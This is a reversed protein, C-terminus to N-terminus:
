NVAMPCCGTPQQAKMGPCSAKAKDCDGCSSAAHDGSCSTCDKQCSDKCKDGRCDTCKDGKCDTCKDGCCSKCDDGCCDKCDGGCNGTCAAAKVQSTSTAQATSAPYFAMAAVATAVVGITIVTLFTKRKM